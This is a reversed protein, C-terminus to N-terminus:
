NPLRAAALIPGQGDEQILVVSHQGQAPPLTLTLPARGTWREVIQWGTVINAYALTRGANEGRRIEVEAMPLYSVIQVVANRPAGEHWSASLHVRGGSRRLDITVPDAQQDHARILDMLDMGKAGVVHDVGGVVFQPTYVTNAGAARAYRHQRATWAPSGFSDAWGIYDWYDVHLALAIIDDRGAMEALMEDAPPCSSCGQSTFLEVVVPSDEAMAGGSIATAGAVLIARITQIM